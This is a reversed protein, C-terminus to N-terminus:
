RINRARERRRRGAAVAPFDQARLSQETDRQQASEEARVRTVIEEYQSRSYGLEALVVDSYTM